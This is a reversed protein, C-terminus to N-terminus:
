QFFPNNIKLGLRYYGFVINGHHNICNYIELYSIWLQKCIPHFIRHRCYFIKGSCGETINDSLQFQVSSKCATVNNICSHPTNQILSCVRPPNLNVTNFYFVNYWRFRNLFSHFFLHPCFPFTPLGNKLGLTFLLRGNKNCFSFLSGYYQLSFGM